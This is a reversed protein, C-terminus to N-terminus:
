DDYDADAISIEVVHFVKVGILIREEGLLSFLELASVDNLENWEVLEFGVRFTKGFFDQSLQGLLHHLVEVLLLDLWVGWNLCGLIPFHSGSLWHFDLAEIDLHLLLHNLFTGVLSHRLGLHLVEKIRM